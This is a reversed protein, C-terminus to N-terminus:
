LVEALSGSIKYTFIYPQGIVHSDTGHGRRESSDSTSHPSPQLGCVGSAEGGYPPPPRDFGAGEAGSARLGGYRRADELNIPISSAASLVFGAGTTRQHSSRSARRDPKACGVRPTKSSKLRRSGCPPPGPPSERRWKGGVLTAALELNRSPEDSPNAESRVYEFWVHAGIAVNWAHFAHM